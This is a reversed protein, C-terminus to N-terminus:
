DCEDGEGDDANHYGRIYELYDDRNEFADAGAKPAGIIYDNEGETYYDISRVHSMTGIESVVWNRDRNATMKQEIAKAIDINYMRSIDFMMIYVDAHEGSDYPNRLLEGFEEYLKLAASNLTRDPFVGDAWACISDQLQKIESM